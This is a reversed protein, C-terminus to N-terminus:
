DSNSYDNVKCEKCVKYLIKKVTCCYSSGRILPVPYAFYFFPLSVFTNSILGDCGSDLSNFTRTKILM